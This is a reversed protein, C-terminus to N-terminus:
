DHPASKFRERRAARRERGRERKAEIARRMEEAAAEDGGAVIDALVEPSPGRVLRRLTEEMTEDDHQHAKIRKYFAESVRIMKTM